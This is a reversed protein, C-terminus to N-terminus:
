LGKVPPAPPTPRSSNGLLWIGVDINFGVACFTSASQGIGLVVTSRFRLPMRSSMTIGRVTVFSRSLKSTLSVHCRLEWCETQALNPISSASTTSSNM